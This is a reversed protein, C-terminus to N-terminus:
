FLASLKELRNSDAKVLGSALGNVFFLLFLIATLIIGVLIYKLKSHSLEKFALFM